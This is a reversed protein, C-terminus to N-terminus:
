KEYGMEKGIQKITVLMEEALRIEINLNKAKNKRSLIQHGIGKAILRWCVLSDAPRPNIKDGGFRCVLCRGDGDMTEAAECFGCDSIITEIHYEYLKKPILLDKNESLDKLILEWKKVSSLYRGKTLYKM